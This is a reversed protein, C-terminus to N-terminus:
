GGGVRDALVLEYSLFVQSEFHLESRHGEM